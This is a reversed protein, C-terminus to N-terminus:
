PQQAAARLAKAPHGGVPEIFIGTAEALLAGDLTSRGWAVVKRGSHELVGAEYDIRRHLPTGRRLKVELTGTLGAIGSAAQAVGLLDDFASIVYGGHVLGPPGEYSEGYTAHGRTLDGDFQLSLPAALANSRGSLPSREFLSADDGALHLGLSRIDPLDAFAKRALAIREEVEALQQETVAEVDLMLVDGVLTRLEDALAHKRARRPSPPPDEPFWRERAHTM